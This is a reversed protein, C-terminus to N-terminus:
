LFSGVSFNTSVILLSILLSQYRNLLHHLLVRWSNGVGNENECFFLEDVLKVSKSHQALSYTYCFSVLWAEGQFSLHDGLM